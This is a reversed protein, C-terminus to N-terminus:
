LFIVGPYVSIIAGTEANVIVGLTYFEASAGYGGFAWVLNWVSHVEPVKFEWYDDKTVNGFWAYGQERRWRNLEEIDQERLIKLEEIRSSNCYYADIRFWGTESSGVKALGHKVEEANKSIEIAEERTIPGNAESISIIATVVFVSIVFLVIVKEVSVRLYNVGCNYYVKFWIFSCM